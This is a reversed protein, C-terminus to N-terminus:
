FRQFSFALNFWKFQVKLKQSFQTYANKGELKISFYYLNAFFLMFLIGTKKNVRYESEGIRTIEYISNNIKIEQRNIPSKSFYQHLKNKLQLYKDSDEKWYNECLYWLRIEKFLEVIKNKVKM